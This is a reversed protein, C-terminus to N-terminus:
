DKKRMAWIPYKLSQESGFPQPHFTEDKEIVESGYIKRYISSLSQDHRNDKFFDKQNKNYKDTFLKRDNNLTKLMFDIFKISHENKKILYITAIYQGTNAIDSELSVNYYNFIEKTTWIKEMQDHMQFSLIGYKSNELKNVYENFKKMGKKNLQCGADIYLLLDNENLKDMEQKIINFKWIWYGGGRKMSLIDKYEEKFDPNINEPGYGAISTFINFEKAEKLLRQKAKEFVHNGYTIFHFKRDMIKEMWYNLTIKEMKFKKEKFEEWTKELLEKSIEDWNNLVLIPLDEYLEEISSKLVIPISGMYLAEWTRHCDIGAGRPSLVFKYESLNKYYDEPAENVRITGEIYSKSQYKKTNTNYKPFSAFDSWEKKAKIMIKNRENHTGTDFNIMLLKNKEKRKSQIIQKYHREHNLGIPLAKLKPHEYPKNWTYWNILKEKELWEKKIEFGDTEITILIFNNKIKNYVNNFFNNIIHNYGALVVYKSDAIDDIKKVKRTEIYSKKKNFYYSIGDETIYDQKFNIKIIELKEKDRKLIKEFNAKDNKVTYRPPGGSNKVSISIMKKAPYIDNMWDDIYWNEIEPPFYYNFLKLHTTHVFSQTILKPNNIDNPGVAGIFNVSALYNIFLDEWDPTILKIDDGIQYLFDNNEAAIFALNNWIQGVKGKLNEMPILFLQDENNFSKFHDKIKDLNNVYFKDDHDYGLYFSYKYKTRKAIKLFSDYLIAFFDMDECKQYDRRNSTTPIIFAINNNVNNTTIITFFRNERDIEKKKTVRRRRHM